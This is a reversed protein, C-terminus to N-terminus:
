FPRTAEYIITVLVINLVISVILGMLLCWSILRWKAVAPHPRQWAPRQRVTIRPLLDTGNM